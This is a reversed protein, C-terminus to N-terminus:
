NFTAGHFLYSRHYEQFDCDVALMKVLIKIEVRKQEELRSLPAEYETVGDTGDTAKCGHKLIEVERHM